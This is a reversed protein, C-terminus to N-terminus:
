DRDFQRAPINRELGLPGYWLVTVLRPNRAEPTRSFPMGEATFAADALLVLELALQQEPDTAAVKAVGHWVGPGEEVLPLAEDFLVSDGVRVVVRPAFGFRAQYLTMGDHTVPHNVRVEAERVAAGDEIFTVASRFERPT